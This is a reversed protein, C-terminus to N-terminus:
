LFDEPKQQDVLGIFLKELLADVNVWPHYKNFLSTGDRGLMPKLIKVGGPHFKLYPVINYVKGRVVIWGDQETRHQRVEEMSINRRIHGGNLGALDKQTRTLRMWDMQSYGKELPIKGQRPAPNEINVPEPKTDQTQQPAALVVTSSATLPQVKDLDQEQQVVPPFSFSDGESGAEEVTQDVEM